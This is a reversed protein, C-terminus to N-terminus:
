RVPTSRATARRPRPRRARGTPAPPARRPGAPARTCRPPTSPTGAGSTRARRGRQGRGRRPPPAAADTTRGLAAAPLGGVWAGHFRALADTGPDAAHVDTWRPYLTDLDVRVFVDTIRCGRADQGMAFRWEVRRPRHSASATSPDAHGRAHEEGRRSGSAVRGARADVVLRAAEFGRRAVTRRSRQLGGSAQPSWRRPGSRDGGQGRTKTSTGPPRRVVLVASIGVSGSTQYEKATDLIVHWNEGFLWGMYIWVPVSILAALFDMLLFRSFPFNAIGASLFVAGRIGAVFRGFFVTWMGYKQFFGHVKAAASTPSSNRGGRASRPASSGIRRGIFYLCSDGIVIFIMSLVFHVWVNIKGAGAMAGGFILPIDEPLPVGLGALMLWVCIGIYSFEDLYHIFFDM